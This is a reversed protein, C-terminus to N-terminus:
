GSGFYKGGGLEAAEHLLAITEPSLRLTIQATNRKKRGSGVRRGGRPRPGQDLQETKLAEM